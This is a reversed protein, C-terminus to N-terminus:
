LLTWLTAADVLSGSRSASICAYMLGLAALPDRDMDFFHIYLVHTLFPNILSLRPRVPVITERSLSLAHLTGYQGHYSAALPVTSATPAFLATPGFPASLFSPLLPTRSWVM